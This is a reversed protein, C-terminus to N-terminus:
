ISHWIPTFDARVFSSWGLRRQALGFISGALLGAILLFWFIRLRTQTM